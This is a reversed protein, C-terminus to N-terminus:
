DKHCISIIRKFDVCFTHSNHLLEVNTKEKMALIISEVVCDEIHSGTTAVVCIKVKDINDM